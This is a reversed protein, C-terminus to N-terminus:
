IYVKKSWTGQDFDYTELVVDPIKKNKNYFQPVISWLGPPFVIMLLQFIYRATDQELPQGEIAMACATDVASLIIKPDM